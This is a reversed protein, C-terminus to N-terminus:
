NKSWKGVLTIDQTIPKNPDFAEMSDEYFWGELTAGEVSADPVTQLTEGEIVGLYTSRKNHGDKFYVTHCPAEDIWVEDLFAKREKIFEKIYAAVNEFDGDQSGRFEYTKQWRIQDLAVSGKIENVYDDIKGDILEQLYDSYIDQYYMKVAELFEPQQYLYYFLDTGYHHLTMYGLDRTNTDYNKVRGYAKDFDWAPGAFIKNSIKDEPKYFFSSTSGAGDNRSIEEVLYKKAFSELDLYETYKRGTEPNVGDEACVASEM